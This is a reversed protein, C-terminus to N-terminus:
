LAQVAGGAAAAGFLAVVTEFRKELYVAARESRDLGMALLAQAMSQVQEVLVAYSLQRGDYALAEADPTQLARRVIFEHALDTM